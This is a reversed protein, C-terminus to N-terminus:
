RRATVKAVCIVVRGCLLAARSGVVNLERHLEHKVESM